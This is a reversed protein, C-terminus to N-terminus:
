RRRLDSALNSLASATQESINATSSASSAFAAVMEHCSSKKRLGAVVDRHFLLQGFAEVFEASLPAAVMEMVEVTFYMILSFDSDNVCSLVFEIVPQVLGVALLYLLRDVLIRKLDVAVVADVRFDQLFLRQLTAFVYPRLLEHSQAMFDFFCFHPPTSSTNYASFFADDAVTREVWLLLGRCVIPYKMATLLTAMASSHLNGEKLVEVAKELSAHTDQLESLDTTVNGDADRTENASVTYALVYVTQDRTEKSSASDPTFLESIMLDILAPVRLLDVPPRLSADSYAAHVAAIDAPNVTQSKLLRSLAHILAPHRSAGEDHFLLEYNFVEYGRQTAQALMEQSLRKFAAGDDSQMVTHLLAQGYLYTHQAVCSMATLDPLVKQLHEESKGALSAISHSLVASYVELQQSATSVSAIEDLYGADSIRKIAFSLMLSNPHEQSLQYILSRWTQHRILDNLWRAERDDDDFIKQAHASDFNDHAVRYIHGEISKTVAAPEMGTLVLWDRLINAMQAHGRYNEALLTVIRAPNGKALMYRGLTSLVDTEMIADVQRVREECEGIVTKDGGAAAGAGAAQEM